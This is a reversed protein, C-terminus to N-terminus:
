QHLPPLCHLTLQACGICACAYTYRSGSGCTSYTYHTYARIYTHHEPTAMAFMCVLCYTETASLHHSAALKMTSTTTQTTSSSSSSSSSCSSINILVQAHALTHMSM